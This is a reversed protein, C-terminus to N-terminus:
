KLIFGNNKGEEGPHHLQNHLIPQAPKNSNAHSLYNQQLHKIPQTTATTSLQAFSQEIAAINIPAIYLTIPPPNFVINPLPPQPPLNLIVNVNFNFVPQINVLENREENNDPLIM